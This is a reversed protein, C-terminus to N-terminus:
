AASAFVMIQSFVIASVARDLIPDRDLFHKRMRLGEVM